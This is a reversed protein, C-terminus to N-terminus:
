FSSPMSSFWLMLIPFLKVTMICVAITPIFIVFTLQLVGKLNTTGAWWLAGHLDYFRSHTLLCCGVCVPLTAQAQLGLVGSVSACSSVFTWPWGPSCLSNLALGPMNTRGERFHFRLFLGMSTAGHLAQGACAYGETWVGPHFINVLLNLAELFVTLNLWPLPFARAM